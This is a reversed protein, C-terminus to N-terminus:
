RSKSRGGVRGFLHEIPRSLYTRTGARIRIRLAVADGLRDRSDELFSLGVPGFLRGQFIRLNSGSDLLRQDGLVVNATRRHGDRQRNRRIVGDGPFDCWLESAFLLETLYTDGWGADLRKNKVGCTRSKNNKLLSLATRRLISFASM